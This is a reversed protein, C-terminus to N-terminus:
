VYMFAFVHLIFFLDKAAKLAKIKYKTGYIDFVNVGLIFITLFRM